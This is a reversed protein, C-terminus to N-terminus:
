RREKEVAKKKGGGEGQRYRREYEVLHELFLEELAQKLLAARESGALGAEELEKLKRYYVWGADRKDVASSLLRLLNRNGSQWALLFPTALEESFAHPDAGSRLMLRVLSECDDLCPFDGLADALAHLPTEGRENAASPDAGRELLLMALQFDLARCAEHLPTDGGPGRANPDAGRELLLRATRRAGFSVARLLPTWGGVRANPDVGQKLLAEVVEANDVEAARVLAAARLRRLAEAPEIGHRVRVAALALALEERSLRPPSSSRLEMFAVLEDALRLAEAWRGAERTRIGM